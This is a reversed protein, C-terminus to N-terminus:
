LGHKRKLEAIKRELAEVRDVAKDYNEQVVQARQANRDTESIPAEAQIKKMRDLFLSRSTVDGRALELKKELYALEAAPTPFSTPEPKREPLMALGKTEALLGPTVQPRSRAEAPDNERPAIGRGKGLAADDDSVDSGQQASVKDGKGGRQRATDGDPWFILLGAVVLVAAGILVAGLSGQPEEPPTTRSTSLSPKPADPM